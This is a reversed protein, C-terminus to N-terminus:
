HADSMKQGLLLPGYQAFAVGALILAGGAVLWITIVEDLVLAGAIVAIVPVLYLFSGVIAGKLHRAGYNWMLTAIFANALALFFLEAWIRPSLEAFATALPKSSLPIFLPATLLFTLVTINFAGYKAFLPKGAITYIAWALCALIIAGVGYGNVPNATDHMLDPWFLVLAGVLSIVLGIFLSASIRERLFAWALLAIMMPEVMTIVTGLGAGIRAFGENVFWNYAGLGVLSVFLLRPWDEGAIRWGGTYLIVPVLAATMIVYRLALSDLPGLAVATSRIFVAGAGWILMTAILALAARTKHDTM